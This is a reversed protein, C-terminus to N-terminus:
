INVSIPPNMFKFLNFTNVIDSKAMVKAHFQINCIAGFLGNKEGVVIADDVTYTPLRSTLSFSRELRGNIFLDASNETYNFVFNNWRQNPLTLLDIKYRSQEIDNQNTEHDTCYFYYANDLQSYTLKPKSCVIGSSSTHGYNFIISEKSYASSSSSQTNIFIWASISYNRLYQFDPPVYVDVSQTMLTGPESKTPIINPFAVKIDDSSAVLTEMDLFTPTNLLISGNSVVMFKMLAPVYIYLLILILEVIFIYFVVTPTIKYEGILYKILDNLLCPIYFLFQIIFGYKGNEMRKIINVFVNYFIVIGLVTILVIIFNMILNALILASSSLLRTYIYYIIGVFVCMGIFGYFVLSTKSDEGFPAINQVYLFAIILPIILSIAYTYTMTTLASADNKAYLLVIIMITIVIFAVLYKKCSKIVDGMIGMINQRSEKKRLFTESM